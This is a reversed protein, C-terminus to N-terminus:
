PGPQKPRALDEPEAQLVPVGVSGGGPLAVMVVVDVLRQVEGYASAGNLLTPAPM